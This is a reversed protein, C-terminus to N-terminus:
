RDKGAHLQTFISATTSDQVAVPKSSGNDRIVRPVFIEPCTLGVWREAQGARFGRDESLVTWKFVSPEDGLEHKGDQDEYVAGKDESRQDTLHGADGLM